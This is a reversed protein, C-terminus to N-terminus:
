ACNREGPDAVPGPDERDAGCLGSSTMAGAIRLQAYRPCSSLTARRTLEPVAPGNEEGMMIGASLYYGFFLENESRLLLMAEVRAATGSADIAEELVRLAIM